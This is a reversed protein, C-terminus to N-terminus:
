DFYSTSRPVANIVPKSLGSIESIIEVYRSDVTNVM